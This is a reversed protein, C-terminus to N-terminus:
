NGTSALSLDVLDPKNREVHVHIYGSPGCTTVYALKKTQQLKKTVLFYKVFCAHARYFHLQIKQQNSFPTLSM